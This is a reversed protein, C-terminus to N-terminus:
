AAREGFVIIAEPLSIRLAFPRFGASNVPGTFEIDVDGGKERAFAQVADMGVGRGSIPRRYPNAFYLVLHLQVCQQAITVCCWSAWDM